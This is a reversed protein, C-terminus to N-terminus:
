FFRIIWISENVEVEVEFIYSVRFHIYKLVNLNSNWAEFFFRSISLLQSHSYVKYSNICDFPSLLCRNIKVAYTSVYAAPLSTLSLLFLVTDKIRIEEFRDCVLLLWSDDNDIYICMYISIYIALRAVLM